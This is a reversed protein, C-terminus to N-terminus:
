EQELTAGFSDICADCYVSFPCSGDAVANEDLFVLIPAAALEALIERVIVEITPTFESKVGTRLLSTILRIRKILDRLFNRYHGIGGLLDRM